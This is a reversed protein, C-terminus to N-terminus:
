NEHNNRIIYVDKSYIKVNDWNGINKFENSYIPKILVKKDLIETVIGKFMCKRISSSGTHINQIYIVEDNIKIDKNEFDKM